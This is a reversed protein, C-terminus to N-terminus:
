LRRPAFRDRLVPARSGTGTTVRLPQPFLQDTNPADLGLSDAFIAWFSENTARRDNGPLVAERCGDSGVNAVLISRSTDSFTLQYRTGVSYPCWRDTAIPLNVLAAYLQQTAAADQVAREFPAVPQLGSVRIVRLVATSPASCSIATLVALAVGIARTM